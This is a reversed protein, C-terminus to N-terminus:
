IGKKRLRYSALAVLGVGLPGMFVAPPLPAIPTAGDPRLEPPDITATPDSSDPNVAASSQSTEFWDDEPSSGGGTLDTKSSTSPFDSSKGPEAQASGHVCCIGLAIALAILTPWRM